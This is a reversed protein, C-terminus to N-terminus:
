KTDGSYEMKTGTLGMSKVTALIEACEDEPASILIWKPKPIPMVDFDELYREEKPTVKIADAMESASFGFSEIDFNDEEILSTLEAMLKEEDWTSLEGVKNDVLRYAKIQEPTLDKAVHVPIKKDGRQLAALYRTDGVVIVMDKDVVIPQRWGFENLSQVVADVTGQNQRPNNAYRKISLPSLQKIDMINDSDKIDTRPTQLVM